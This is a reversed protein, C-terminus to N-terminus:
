NQGTEPSAEQAVIRRDTMNLRGASIEAILKRMFPDSATREELEQMRNMAILQLLDTRVNGAQDRPLVDVQQVLDASTSHRSLDHLDLETGAEVFAYIGTGKRPFPYTALAVDAVGPISRLTGLIAAGENDIRDGTGEGDSWNFIGRTVLNYVRKGTAMWIRSPLSRRALLRKGTPTLLHPAFARKQKLLHRFDEYAMTHFLASKRRHLSALQFDIVAAHGDPTMLWNQPKALDNHTIGARRMNRLLVAADRYFGPHSPRALHLPTGESWTRFLGHKDTSLLQPTGPLGRVAKLARIERRALTWALPKSWWPAASVVRRIVPTAPDSASHGKHTESFVDRKLVTDSVFNQM